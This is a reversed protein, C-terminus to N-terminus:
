IIDNFMERVLDQCHDTEGNAFIYANVRDLDQQTIHERHHEWLTEGLSLELFKWARVNELSRTIIGVGRNEPYLPIQPDKHKYRFVGNVCEVEEILDALEIEDFQSLSNTTLERLEVYGGDVMVVEYMSGYIDIVEDGEELNKGHPIQRLISQIARIQTTLKHEEIRIFTLCDKAKNNAIRKNLRDLKELSRTIEVGSGNLFTKADQFNKSFKTLGSHTTYYYGRSTNIVYVSNEM